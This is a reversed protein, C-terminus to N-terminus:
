VLNPCIVHIEDLVKIIAGSVEPLNRKLELLSVVARSYKTKDSCLDCEHLESEEDSIQSVDFCRDCVHARCQQCHKVYSEHISDEGCVSCSYTTVGM